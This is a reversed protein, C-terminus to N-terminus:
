GDDGDRYDNDDEVEGVAIGYRDRVEQIRTAIVVDGEYKGTLYFVPSLNPEVQEPTEAPAFSLLFKIDLLFQQDDVSM